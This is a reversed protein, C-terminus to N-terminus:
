REVVFKRVELKNGLLGRLLYNGANLKSVDIIFTHLGGEGKYQYNELNRGQMDVIDFSVKSAESLSFKTTLKDNTPNPFIELGEITEEPITQEVAQRANNNPCELRANVWDAWDGWNNDGGDEVVLKIKSIGTITAEIPTATQWISKTIPGALVAGNNDNVIKFVITQNGCNCNYSGFDRGVEAKFKNFSHSGLDYIIESFAHTGLGLSYSTTASNQTNGGVQLTGGSQNANTNIGYSSSAYSAEGVSVYRNTCNNTPNTPCSVNEFSWLRYNVFSESTNGWNQLYLGTGSGEMDWTTGNKSIRFNNGSAQLDFAMGAGLDMKTGNNSDNVKIYQNNSVAKFMFQSGSSEAKWIQNNQGNAAQQQIKGDSMAQMPNNTQVSRIIYCSNNTLGSTTTNPCTTAQFRWLRWDIFGESTNGYNQLYTGSGAGEMDWTINYSPISLRYYGGSADVNWSQYNNSNSSLYTHDGYNPTAVTIYQNTAASVFKMQSGSAEARWIQNAAATAGQRQISGDGMVQMNNSLNVKPSIVYCTGAVLGSPPPTSGVTVTVTGQGVSQCNGNKCIVTYTTTSTPSVTVSSGTQGTNWNATSGAPCTTNIATSQGSTITPSSAYTNTPNAPITCSSTGCSLVPDLWDAHDGYYNDGGDNVILELNSKGAVNVSFTQKGNTVGLLNSTFLTTGDAKIIFQITQGGCNCGDAEDDRGVSGSFTSYQGGINYVLRSNAHTGIGSNTQYGGVQLPAKGDISKNIQMTGYGQWENSGNTPSLTTLNVQCSSALQTVPITEIDGNSGTITITGYRQNSGTNEQSIMNLNTIGDYGCGQSISLWSQADQSISVSWDVNKSLIKAIKNSAVKPAQWSFVDVLDLLQGADISNPVIFSQSVFIKMKYGNSANDDIDNSMYCTYYDITNSSKPVDLYNQTKSSNETNYLGKENKVWFYRQFSTPAQLRFTSGNDTITLEQLAQGGTFPTGDTSSGFTNAWREGVTNHAAGSFHVKMGQGRGNNNDWNTIDDTSAGLKNVNALNQQANQIDPLTTPNQSGDYTSKAISWALSSHGLDLRSQSITKGIRLEYDSWSTGRDAEGQQWLIRKVGFIHGYMLLVDRFQGYIWHPNTNDGNTDPNWLNSGSGPWAANFFMMPVQNGNQYMKYAMPAWTWSAQGNPYINVENKAQDPHTAPTELTPTVEFADFKHRKDRDQSLINNGIPLGKPMQIKENDPKNQENRYTLFGSNLFNVADPIDLNNPLGQPTTNHPISGADDPWTYGSANSQGALIFVDGVGFRIYRKASFNSALGCVTTKTVAIELDYWGTNLRGLKGVFTKINGHPSSLANSISVYVQGTLAITSTSRVGTQKDVPYVNYQIGNNTNALQQYGFEGAFWVDTGGNGDRQFITRDLPWTIRLGGQATTEFQILLLIFCFIYKNKM